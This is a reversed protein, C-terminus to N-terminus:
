REPSLGTARTIVTTWDGRGFQIPCPDIFVHVDPFIRYMAEIMKTHAPQRHISETSGPVHAIMNPHHAAKAALFDRPSFADDGKKMLALLHTTRTSNQTVYNM